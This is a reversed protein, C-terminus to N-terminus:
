VQTLSSMILDESMLHLHLFKRGELADLGPIPGM